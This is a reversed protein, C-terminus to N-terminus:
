FSENDPNYKSQFEKNWNRCDALAAEFSVDSYGILLATIAEYGTVEYVARFRGGDPAKNSYGDYVNYELTFREDAISWPSNQCATWNGLEVKKDKEQLWEDVPFRIKAQGERNTQENQIRVMLSDESVDYPGTGQSSFIYTVYGEIDFLVGRLVYGDPVNLEKVKKFTDNVIM